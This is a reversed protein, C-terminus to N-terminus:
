KIVSVKVPFTGYFVTRPKNDITVVCEHYLNGILPATDAPLIVLDFVGIDSGTQPRVVIGDGIGKEVLKQSSKNDPRIEYTVAGVTGTPLAVRQNLRNVVTVEADVHDGQYVDDANVERASSM